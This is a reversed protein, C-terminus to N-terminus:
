PGGGSGPVLAAHIPAVWRGDPISYAVFDGEFQWYAWPIGRADAARAVAATWAARAPMPARDYTGFEGLFLPRRHAAAWTAMADFERSVQLRDADTGWGIDSGARVDPRAWAAGQHTFSYPNYYHVTVLLNRDADPLSLEGLKTYSNSGVPGVVVTRDPNTRRIVQLAEALLANWRPATLQGNPENLIEFLVSPPAARFRPAVQEWFALLRTRCNDADAACPRYDHEDLIVHLGAQTARAVVDDLTQLWRPDLHNAADMHTFAQLNVRVTQFGGARIVAYLNPQFRAKAPDTWLPDYGLINVGRGLPPAESAPAATRAVPQAYASLALLLPALTLKFRPM